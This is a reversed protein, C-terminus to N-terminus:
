DSIDSDGIIAEDVNIRRAHISQHLQSMISIQSPFQEQESGVNTNAATKVRMRQKATPM